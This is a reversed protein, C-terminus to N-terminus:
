PSPEPHVLSLTTWHIVQSWASNQCREWKRKRQDSALILGSVIEWLVKHRRGFKAAPIKCDSQGKLLLATLPLLNDVLSAWLKSGVAMALSCTQRPLDTARLFERRELLITMMEKEGLFPTRNSALQRESPASFYLLLSTNRRDIRFNLMGGQAVGPCKFKQLNAQEFERGEPCFLREFAGGILVSSCRRLSLNRRWDFV